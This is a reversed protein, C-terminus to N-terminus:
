LRSSLANQYENMSRRKPELLAKPPLSTTKDKCSVKAMPIDKVETIGEVYEATGSASAIENDLCFEITKKRIEETSDTMLQEVKVLHDRYYRGTKKHLLALYSQAYIKGKFLNMFSDELRQLTKSKDRLHDSNLIFQGSGYNVRHETLLNSELDLILIRDDIFQLKVKNNGTKYSGSPVSYFNSHYLVTNDKRLTYIRSNEEIPFTPDASYPILHEKEKKWEESPVLRTGKHVKGNGTRELWEIAGTNLEEITNFDRGSLYNKKVYGVINEIKGKSQPDAKRCFVEEFPQSDCFRQFDHTLLYDGLNEKKMFVSDQDYIIQKPIGEFYQFALEHAYIAVASTFPRNTFYIFKFRSRSLSMAFFWVKVRKTGEAETNLYAEGFDVQAENGYPTEPLKNFERMSKINVKPISYKDRIHKVFNYFTRECPADITPHHEKFRDEIQAASLYPKSELQARVFESYPDLLKSYRRSQYSYSLISDGDLKRYKKVTRRDLGTEVSIQSDNLNQQSLENVKSWMLIKNLSKKM